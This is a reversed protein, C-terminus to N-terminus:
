AVLNHFTTENTALLIFIDVILWLFWLLEITMEM